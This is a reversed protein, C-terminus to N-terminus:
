VTKEDLEALLMQVEDAKPSRRHWEYVKEVLTRCGHGKVTHAVVVRVNDGPATLATKLAEVDHGATERVDCGFSRFREAPNPIPLCRGQSQNDDYIVALNPLRLHSAVAVAEWVTGENSEGDGVLTIVRRQSGAIKQALAMGVAVGIGHGLSGTSVEVGPVKTRDPHCGFRSEFAGFTRVDAVEFYGLAALTCYYGLSAHGKSLVFLDREPWDPRRPDHRMCGYAAYIAEVISFSTPMHGHGSAHSCALIDQRIKKCVANM